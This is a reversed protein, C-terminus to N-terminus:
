KPYSCVKKFVPTPCTCSELATVMKKIAAANEPLDYLRSRGQRLAAAIYKMLDLVDDKNMFVMKGGQAKVLSSYTAYSKGEKCLKENTIVFHITLKKKNVYTLIETLKEEDNSSADTFVFIISGPEAKKVVRLIGTLSKEPCDGGGKAKPLANVYGIATTSDSTVKLTEVSPDNFGIVMYQDFVKYKKNQTFVAKIGAQVNAIDKSMSGTTDVVFGLGVEGKIKSGDPLTKSDVINKCKCPNTQVSKCVKKKTTDTGSGSGSSGSKTGFVKVECLTLYKKTKIVAVYRGIEM